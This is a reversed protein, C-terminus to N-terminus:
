GQRPRDAAHRGVAGECLEIESGFHDLWFDAIADRKEPALERIGAPYNEMALLSFASIQWASRINIRACTYCNGTRIALGPKTIGTLSSRLVGRTGSLEEVIERTLPRLTRPKAARSQASLDGGVLVVAFLLFGVHKICMM